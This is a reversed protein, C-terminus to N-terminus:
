TVGAGLALVRRLAADIQAMREPPMRGLRRLAGTRPDQIRAVDIARAHFCLFVTDKVLGTEAATVRVNSPYDELLRESGTGPVTTVVLPRRNISEASVVVVPRRGDQERGIVPGLDGLFIDGRRIM